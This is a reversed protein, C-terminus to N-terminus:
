ADVCRGIRWSGEVATADFPLTAATASRDVPGASSRMPHQEGHLLVETMMRESAWTSRLLKSGAQTEM